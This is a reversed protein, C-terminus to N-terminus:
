EMLMNYNYDSELGDNVREGGAGSWCVTEVYELLKLSLIMMAGKFIFTKAKEDM